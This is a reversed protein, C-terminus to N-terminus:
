KNKCTKKHRKWDLNQCERSCYYVNKCRACYKTTQKDCVMCQSVVSECLKMNDRVSQEYEKKGKFRDPLNPTTESGLFSSIHDLGILRSDKQRKYVSDSLMNESIEHAYTGQKMGTATGTEQSMEKSTNFPSQALSYISLEIFIVM